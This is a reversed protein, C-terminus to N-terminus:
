AALRERVHPIDARRAERVQHSLLTEVAITDGNLTLFEIEYAEGNRYVHIVVGVDDAELGLHPLAETLVVTAHESLM